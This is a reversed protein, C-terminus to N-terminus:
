GRRSAAKLWRLLDPNVGAGTAHKRLVRDGSIAAIRDSASRVSSYGIVTCCHGPPELRRLERCVADGTSDGLFFDMLVVAPLQNPTLVLAAFAAIAEHGSLFSCLTWGPALAVTARAVQHNGPADDVLWILM